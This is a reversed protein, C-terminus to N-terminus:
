SKVGTYINNLNRKPHSPQTNISRVNNETVQFNLFFDIEESDVEEWDEIELEPHIAMLAHINMFRQAMALKDQHGQVGKILENVEQVRSKQKIKMSQFFDKLKQEPTETRLNFILSAKAEKGNLTYNFEITDSFEELKTIQLGYAKFQNQLEQTKM